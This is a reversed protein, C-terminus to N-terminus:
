ATTALLEPNDYVNGIVEGFEHTACLWVTNPVGKLAFTGGDFVVECVGATSDKFIDGEYIETGNKDKLGTFQHFSVVSGEKWSGDKHICFAGLWEKTRTDWARFKIERM